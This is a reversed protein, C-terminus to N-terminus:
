DPLLGDRKLEAKFDDHSLTPEYRREIVLSMDELDELLAEFDEISLIVGSREGSENTIYQVNLEKLKLLM